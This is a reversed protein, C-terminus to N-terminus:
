FPLMIFRRSPYIADRMESASQYRSEPDIELAKAIIHETRKSVSPNAKRISPLQLSVGVAMPTARSEPRPPTQGTLLYYMTAGLSYLDSRADTGWKKESYQEPPAYDITGFSQVFSGILKITSEVQKMLGFDILMVRGDTRLILNEPKIDRHIIPNPQSHLYSLADLVQLAWGVVRSEELLCDKCLTYQQIYRLTYGEIFEMALYENNQSPFHEYIEPINPHELDQLVSMEHILRERIEQRHDKCLEPDLCAEKIAVLRENKMDTAKYIAGMGGRAIEEMIQYCTINGELETLVAEASM